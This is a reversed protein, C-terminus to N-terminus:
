NLKSYSWSLTAAIFIWIQYPMLALALNRSASFTYVMVPLTLIASILLSLAASSLSHNEYFLYSWRLAFAVSLSLFLISLFVSVASARQCITYISIILLIFNYPWILGFVYDPPQWSPQKLSQYWGDQRNWYNSGLAYIVVILIGIGTSINRWNAILLNKNMNVIVASDLFRQLIGSRESDM